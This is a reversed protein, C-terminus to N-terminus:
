RSGYKLNINNLKNADIIYYKVAGQYNDSNKFANNGGTYEKKQPREKNDSYYVLVANELSEIEHYMRNLRDTEFVDGANLVPCIAFSFQELMNFFM